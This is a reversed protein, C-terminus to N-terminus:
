SIPSAIPSAEPSAIPSAEPSAEPTGEDEDGGPLEEGPAPAGEEPSDPAAAACEAESAVGVTDGHGEHAPVANESVTIMVVSNADSGTVHCVNVKAEPAAQGESPAQAPADAAGQGQDQGIGNGNGNGGANGNDQDQGQGGANGNDQGQGNGNNQGQGNGQGNGGANGNGNGNGQLAFLNTDFGAVRAVGTGMTFMGMAVVAILAIAIMAM